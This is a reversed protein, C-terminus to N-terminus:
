ALRKEFWRNVRPNGNYDPIERYGAARYIRIAEALRDRTDLRVLEFGRVRARNELEELLRTAVGSGRNAPAVYMRKIEAVGPGFERLAGVGIADGGAYALLVVGGPEVAEALPSGTEGGGSGAYRSEVEDRLAADLAAADPDNAPVQKIEVEVAGLQCLM